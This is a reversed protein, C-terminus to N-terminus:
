QQSNPSPRDPPRLRGEEDCQAFVYYYWGTVFQGSKRPYDDGLVQICKFQFREVEAIVKAPVWMHTLLGGHAPDLVYGEGRWFSQSPVRRAMRVLSEGASRVTSFTAKVGTVLAVAWPYFSRKRGVLSRSYARVREPDWSPRTLVARANHSSFIFVGGSRLVRRCEALCRQRQEVALVDLGNFSFVVADFAGSAFRSLDAADAEEFRLRPFKERCVQVMAPAYDVGVYRGALSSLYPTTRGGGVGLDLISMGPKLHLTFIEKECPTLYNLNAYHAALAPSDYIALNAATSHISPDM